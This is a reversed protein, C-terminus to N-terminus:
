QDALFTMCQGGSDDIGQANMYSLERGIQDNSNRKRQFRSRVRSNLAFGTSSAFLTILSLLTFFSILYVTVSAIDVVPNAVIKKRWPYDRPLKRM